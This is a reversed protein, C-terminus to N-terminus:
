FKSNTEELRGYDAIVSVVVFSVIRGCFVTVDERNM